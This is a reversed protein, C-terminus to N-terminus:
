SLLLVRRHHPLLLGAPPILPPVLPYYSAFTPTDSISGSQGLASLRSLLRLFHFCLVLFVCLQLPPAIFPSRYRDCKRGAKEVIGCASGGGGLSRIWPHQLTWPPLRGTRQGPSMLWGCPFRDKIVDDLNYHINKLRIVYTPQRKIAYITPITFFILHYRPTKLDATATTNATMAFCFGGGPRHVM